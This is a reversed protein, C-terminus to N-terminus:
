EERLPVYGKGGGGRLKQCLTFCVWSHAARFPEEWNGSKLIFVLCCGNLVWTNLAPVCCFLCILFYDFYQGEQLKHKLPIILYVIFIDTFKWWMSTFLSVSPFGLIPAPPAIHIALDPFVQSPLHCQLLSPILSLSFSSHVHALSSCVPCCFTCLGSPPFSGPYQLLPM